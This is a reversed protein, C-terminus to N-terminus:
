VPIVRTLSLLYSFPLPFFLTLLGFGSTGFVCSLVKEEGGPALQFWKMIKCYEHIAHAMAAVLALSRETFYLVKQGGHMGHMRRVVPHMEYRWTAQSRYHFQRNHESTLEEYTVQRVNLKSNM